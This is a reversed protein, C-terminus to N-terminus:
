KVGRSIAINRKEEPLGIWDRYHQERRLEELASGKKLGLDNKQYELNDRRIKSLIKGNLATNMATNQVHKSMSGESASSLSHNHAEQEDASSNSVKDWYRDVFNEVEYIDQALYDINNKLDRLSIKLRLLVQNIEKLGDPSMKNTEVIDRAHQEIRRAIYFRRM